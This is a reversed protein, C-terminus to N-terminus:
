LARQPLKDLDRTLKRTSGRGAGISVLRIFVVVPPKLAQGPRARDSESKM